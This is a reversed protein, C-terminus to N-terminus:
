RSKVTGGPTYQLEWCHKTGCSGATSLSWPDAMTTFPEETTRTMRSLHAIRFPPLVAMISWRVVTDLPIGHSYAIASLPRPATTACEGVVIWGHILISDRKSWGAMGKPSGFGMSSRMMAEPLWRFCVTRAKKVKVAMWSPQTPRGIESSGLTRLVPFAAMCNCEPFYSFPTWVELKSCLTPGKRSGYRWLRLITPLSCRM